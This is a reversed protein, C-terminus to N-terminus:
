FKPQLELVNIQTREVTEKNYKIRDKLNETGPLCDIPQLLELTSDKETITQKAASWKRHTSVGYNETMAVTLM